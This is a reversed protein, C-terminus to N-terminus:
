EAQSNLILYLMNIFFIMGFLANVQLIFAIKLCLYIANYIVEFITQGKSVRM